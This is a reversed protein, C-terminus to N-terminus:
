VIVTNQNQHLLLSVKKIVFSSLLDERSDYFNTELEALELFFPMYHAKGPRRYTSSIIVSIWLELIEYLKDELESGADHEEVEDPSCFGHCGVWGELLM